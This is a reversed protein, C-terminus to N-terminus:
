ADKPRAGCHLPATPESQRLCQDAGHAFRELQAALSGRNGVFHERRRPSRWGSEDSVLDKRLM